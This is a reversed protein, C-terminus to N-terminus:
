LVQMLLKSNAKGTHVAILSHERKGFSEIRGM